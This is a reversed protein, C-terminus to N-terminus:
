TILWWLFGLVVIVFGLVHLTCLIDTLTTDYEGGILVVAEHPEM